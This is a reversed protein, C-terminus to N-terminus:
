NSGTWLPASVPVYVNLRTSETLDRVNVRRRDEDVTFKFGDPPTFTYENTLGDSNIRNFQITLNPGSVRRVIGQLKAHPSGDMDVVDMCSYRVSGFINLVQETFNVNECTLEQANAAPIASVSAIAALALVTKMKKMM